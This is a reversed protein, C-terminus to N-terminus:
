FQFYLFESPASGVVSYAALWALMVVAAGRMRAYAPRLPTRSADHVAGLGFMQATNPGFFSVAAALGILLAGAAFEGPVLTPVPPGLGALGHLVSTAAAFDPSRFFVWGVVVALFTLPRALVTVVARISRPAAAVGTRRWAHNVALYLGHLGGWFVFTWGAGHWLGAVLMVGMLNASARLARDGRGGLPLYLYDRLFTSLTIHWRRWFEVISGAKYPSLFNIPLRLGFMLGLGLAMDSYGSFDFYLQFTYALTATWAAALDVPTSAAADFVATYPALQDALVVKKALGVVFVAGGLAVAGPDVSITRLQEAIWRYHVIPGAILQPFFLVFCLYRVPSVSRADGRYADVLLAIKQFTIFSLGLPLVIGVTPSVSGTLASINALLFETYKFYGLLGVNFAIGSWLLGRRLRASPEGDLARVLAYNLSLSVVIVAFASVSWWAYFFVSAAVTWVLLPVRTPLRSLAFGVLLVVPLFGFIFEPSNFLM